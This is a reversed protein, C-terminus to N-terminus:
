RVDVRVQTGIGAIVWYGPDMDSNACRTQYALERSHCTYAFQKIGLFVRQFNGQHASINTNVEFGVLAPHATRYTLM